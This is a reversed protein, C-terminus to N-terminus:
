RRHTTRDVARIGVRTDQVFAGLQLHNISFRLQGDGGAM